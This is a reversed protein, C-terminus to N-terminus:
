IKQLFLIQSHANQETVIKELIRYRDKLLGDAEEQNIKWILKNISVGQNSPNIVPLSCLLYGNRSLTDYLRNWIENIKDLPLFGL